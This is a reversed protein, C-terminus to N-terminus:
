MERQVGKIQITRGDRLVTEGNYHWGPMSSLMCLCWLLSPVTFDSIRDRRKFYRKWPVPAAVLLERYVRGERKVPVLYKDTLLAGYIPGAYAAGNNAMSYHLQSLLTYFTKAKVKRARGKETREDVKLDWWDPDWKWSPKLEIPMRNVPLEDTGGKGEIDQDSLHTCVFNPCRV